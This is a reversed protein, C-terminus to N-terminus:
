ELPDAEAEAEAAPPRVPRAVELVHRVLAPLYDALAPCAVKTGAVASNFHDEATSGQM